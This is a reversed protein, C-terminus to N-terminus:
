IKAFNLGDPILDYITETKTKNVQWVCYYKFELPVCKQSITYFMGKIKDTKLTLLNDTKLM